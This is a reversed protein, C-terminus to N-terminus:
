GNSDHEDILKHLDTYNALRGGFSSQPNALVQDIPGSEAVGGRDMIVLYDAFTAADLLDHTVMVSLREALLNKLLALVEPVSDFDLAAMPEDLLILQPKAALTRAIAVRQAQGGSLERPKRDAFQSCGVLDLYERATDQARQPKEGRSRPAFAVNDLVNLHPFLLPDQALLGSSRQHPPLFFGKGKEDLDVLTQGGLQISGSDPVLTGALLEIITSKGSGNPGMIAVHQTPSQKSNTSTGFNPIELDVGFDREAVQARLRLM